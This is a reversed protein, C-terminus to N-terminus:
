FRPTGLRTTKRGSKTTKKKTAGVKVVNTSSINDSTSQEFSCQKDVFDHGLRRATEEGFLQINRAALEDRDHTLGCSCTWIRDNLALKNNVKGCSCTKSSAVFRGIQILTKGWWDTKYKMQGLCKNWGVEGISRALHHNKMMGKINLDEFCFLNVQNENVLGTTFKHLFDDRQNGIKEHVFALKKRQKEYAKSGKKKRSLKRQEVELKQTKRRLWKPNDVKRGDSLTAFTKIGLDVGISKTIAEKPPTPQGNEVLISVFWKNTPTKSITSTKIDGTFKRDNAVNIKGIKPVELKWTNFDIKIHQPFQISKRSRHKSKFKPFQNQKKFFATFANDLNRLSMQLIQSAPEKLWDYEEKLEPLKKILDFCSIGKGTENYTKIKQELGWNYIFRSVGIWKNLEEEQVLDPYIQYKYAKLM